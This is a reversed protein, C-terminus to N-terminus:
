ENVFCIFFFHGKYQFDPSGQDLCHGSTVFLLYEKQMSFCDIVKQSNLVSLIMTILQSKFKFFDTTTRANIQLPVFLCSFTFLLLLIVQVLTPWSRSGSSFRTYLGSSSLYNGCGVTSSRHGLIGQVINRWGSSHDCYSNGWYHFWGSSSLIIHLSQNFGIGAVEVQSYSGNVIIPGAKSHVPMPNPESPM